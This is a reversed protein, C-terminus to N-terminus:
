CWGGGELHVIWTSAATADATAAAASFYYKAPSGDTCVARSDVASLSRLDLTTTAAGAPAARLLLFFLLLLLRHRLSAMMM